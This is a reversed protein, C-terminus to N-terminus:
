SQAERLATAFDALVSAKAGARDADRSRGLEARQKARASWALAWKECLLACEEREQKLRAEIDKELNVLTNRLEEREWMSGCAPCDEDQGPFTCM